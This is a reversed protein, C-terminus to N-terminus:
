NNFKFNNKFNVYIKIQNSLSKPSKEEVNRSTLVEPIYSSKVPLIDWVKSLLCKLNLNEVLSMTFFANFYLIFHIYIYVIYM